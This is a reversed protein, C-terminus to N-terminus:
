HGVSSSLPVVKHRLRVDDENRKRYGDESLSTINQRSATMAAPSATVAMAVDHHESVHATLLRQIYFNWLTWVALAVLGIIWALAVHQPLPKTFTSWDFKLTILVETIIVAVVLWTQTGIKKCHPDDLFQFVERMTVAGWFLFFVLRGLCLFHPPPIWLVFKLTFTNLEAVLFMAIILLMSFWRKISSTPRWDFETWVYPTFQRLVRNIKGRYSQISWMGRWHYPKMSLYKLTKMGLYIGCGNCIIVDMLWHDWWCESFNPLQHELTYELVEFMISIVMCLWWDRLILTKLWWGFFHTLVFGDMKDWFNHFPDDPRAADYIRCNGGYDKEPLPQGLQPDLHRM